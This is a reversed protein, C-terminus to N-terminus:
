YCTVHVVINSCQKVNGDKMSGHKVTQAKPLMFWAMSEAQGFAKQHSASMLVALYCRTTSETIGLTWRTGWVKAPTFKFAVHSSAGDFNVLSLAIM